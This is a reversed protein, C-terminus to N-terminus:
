VTANLALSPDEPQERADEWIEDELGSAQKPRAIITDIMEMFVEHWAIPDEDMPLVWEESWSANFDRRYQACKLADPVDFKEEFSPSIPWHDQLTLLTQVASHVAVYSFFNSKNGDDAEIQLYPDSLLISIVDHYDFMVAQLIPTIGNRGRVNIDAGCALLEKAADARGLSCTNSLPTDGYWDRKEIDAGLNVMRKILSSTASTVYHLPTEGVRDVINVDAKADLLMEATSLDTVLALHLPSHGRMSQKEPHAGCTLLKRVIQSDGRAAAWSLVTRGQNDVEDIDSRKTLALVQNFTLGSLGLYAKHLSSFGFSDFQSIDQFFLDDWTEPIDNDILQLRWRMSWAHIFASTPLDGDQNTYNIDAGYSILLHALSWNGRATVYQIMTDGDEDIDLVSAEGCDLMHKLEKLAFSEPAELLAGFFEFNRKRMVRLLLEPGKALACSYMISIACELLLPPFAYSCALGGARARCRVSCAQKLSPYARYSLFFSGLITRLLKPSRIQRISHCPCHCGTNCSDQILQVKPASELQRQNRPERSVVMRRDAYQSQSPADPSISSRDKSDVNGLDIGPRRELLKGATEITRLTTQPFSSPQPADLVRLALAPVMEVKDHLLELSCFIQRSQISNRMGISSSFLSLASALAIRSAYIEDKLEQLRREARLYVSKDLRISEGNATFTTLQYSVYSELQLLVSKVRSLSSILSKPPPDDSERTARWLLDNVDNATSQLESVEDNLARLVDPANKLDIGKRLLKALTGGAGLLTLVSASISLPDMIHDSCSGFTKLEVSPITSNKSSRVSRFKGVFSEAESSTLGM